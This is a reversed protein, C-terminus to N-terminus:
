WFCTLIAHICWLTTYYENWCGVNWFKTKFLCCMVVHAASVVNITQSQKFRRNNFHYYFGYMYAARHLSLCISLDCLTDTSTNREYQSRGSPSSSLPSCISSWSALRISTCTDPQPFAPNHKKHAKQKNTERKVLLESSNWWFDGSNWWFESNWWFKAM